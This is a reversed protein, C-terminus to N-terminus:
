ELEYGEINSRHVIVRPKMAYMITHSPGPSKRSRVTLGGFAISAVVDNSADSRDAGLLILVEVNDKLASLSNHGDELRPNEIKFYFLKDEDLLKQLDTAKEVLKKVQMRFARQIFHNGLFHQKLFPRFFACIFEVTAELASSDRYTVPNDFIFRVLLKYAETINMAFLGANVGQYYGRTVFGNNVVRHYFDKSEDSAFDEFKLNISHSILESRFLSILLHRVEEAKLVRKMLYEHEFPTLDLCSIVTAHIGTVSELISNLTAIADTLNQRFETERNGDIWQCNYDYNHILAETTHLIRLLTFTHNDDIDESRHRYVAIYATKLYDICAYVDQIHYRAAPQTRSLAGTTDTLTARLEERQQQTLFNASM